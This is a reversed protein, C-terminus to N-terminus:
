RDEDGAADGAPPMPLDSDQNLLPLFGTGTQDNWDSYAIPFWGQEAYGLMRVYWGAYLWDDGFAARAIEPFRELLKNALESVTDQQADPWNFYSNEQSSSYHASLCDWDRLRAGHSQLVNTRPTISCRWACGSASM